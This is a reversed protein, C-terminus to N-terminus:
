GTSSRASILEIRLNRWFWRFNRTPASPNSGGVRQEWLLHAVLSRWAGIGTMRGCLVRGPGPRAPARHYPHGPSGDILCNGTETRCKRSKPDPRFLAITAAGLVDSRPNEPMLCMRAIRASASLPGGATQDKVAGVGWAVLGTGIPSARLHIRRYNLQNYRRGTM